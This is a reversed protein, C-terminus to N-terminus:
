LLEEDEKDLNVQITGSLDLEHKDAWSFRKGKNKLIFCGAGTDPAQRKKSVEKKVLVLEGAENKEWVEKVEQYEYGNAREFMSRAVKSVALEKGSKISESFNPYDLKWQHITSEHVNFFEALDTDRAGLLTYNFAQDCFSERYKPPRGGEGPDPGKKGSESGM